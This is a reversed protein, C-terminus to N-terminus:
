IRLPGRTDIYGISSPAQELQVLRTVELSTWWTLVEDEELGKTKSTEEQFSESSTCVPDKVLLPM